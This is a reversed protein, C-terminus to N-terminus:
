SEDRYMTMEDYAYLRMYEQAGYIYMHLMSCIYYAIRYLVHVADYEYNSIHTYIGTRM